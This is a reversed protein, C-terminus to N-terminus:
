WGEDIRLYKRIETKLKQYVQSHHVRSHNFTNYVGIPNFKPAVNKEFYSKSFDVMFIELESKLIIELNNRIDNLLEKLTNQISTPMFPDNAFEVLLMVFERHNRTMYIQEIDIEGKKLNNYKEAGYKSKIDKEDVEEIKFTGIVEVNKLINTNGCPIFGDMEKEIKEMLEKQYSFLFGFERLTLIINMPVMNVYDLGNEFSHDNDKLTQLLRSLIESQKKIVETRIPQLVTARARKYTLIAVITGTGVFVLTFLDKLWNINEKIFEIM